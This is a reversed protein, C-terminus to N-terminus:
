SSVVSACLREAGALLEVGLSRLAFLLLAHLLPPGGRPLRLDNGLGRIEAFADAVPTVAMCEVIVVHEAQASNIAM